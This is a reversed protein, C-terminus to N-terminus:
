ACNSHVPLPAKGAAQYVPRWILLPQYHKIATRDSQSIQHQHPIIHGYIRIIAAVQYSKFINDTIGLDSLPYSNAPLHNFTWCYDHNRASPDEQHALCWITSCHCRWDDFGPFCELTATWHHDSLHDLGGPHCLVESFNVSGITKLPTRLQHSHAHYHCDTWWGGGGIADLSGGALVLPILLRPKPDKDPNEKHVFAKFLIRIGMILLYIAIYPKIINGDVSTLVYAGIAGGIMGPIILGLVIRRISIELRWHSFGSIATTFVEATHVSASAIAPPVGVGLLFSNSSVGTRWVWAAM